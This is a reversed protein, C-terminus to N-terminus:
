DNTDGKATRGSKTPKKGNLDKVWQFEPRGKAIQIDFHFIPRQVNTVTLPYHKLGKPFYALFSNTVIYKEDDMWLEAKAGLDKPDQPNTAIFGIIEDHPHVHAEFVGPNYTFDLCL